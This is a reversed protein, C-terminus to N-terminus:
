IEWIYGSRVDRGSGGLGLWLAVWCLSWLAKVEGLSRWLGREVHRGFIKATKMSRQNMQYVLFYNQDAEEWLGKTWTWQGGGVGWCVLPFFFLFYRLQGTERRYVRPRAWVQIPLAAQCQRLWRLYDGEEGQEFELDAVQLFFKWKLKWGM